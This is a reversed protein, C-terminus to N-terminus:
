RRMRLENEEHRQIPLMECGIRRGDSGIKATESTIWGASLTEALSSQSALLPSGSTQGGSKATMQGPLSITRACGRQRRWAAIVPKEVNEM